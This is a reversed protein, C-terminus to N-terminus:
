VPPSGVDSTRDSSAFQRRIVRVFDELNVPKTLYDLFGARLGRQKDHESAAASVAIVPVHQTKPDNRLERLADFGSMGPLNIDMVIVDLRHARALQLGLEGTTASMLSVDELLSAVIDQMFALNDPSDEVYLVTRRVQQQKTRVAPLDVWFESGEGLVSRFGVDGHMLQALRKTIFLGVGTGEIPGLEQGARQFAQFLKGQKDLPIGIGTDSVTLRVHNADVVSLHLGVKGGPRNYKIANTAFNMLIQTFRLRDAAILPLEASPPELTIEVESRVALPELTPLVQVLVEYANTPEISVTVGGSDIQSLNLIDEILCRLHEGSTLIRAVRERQLGSLPQKQDLQMLQAFGLIVSLPTRLEHSILSFFESRARSAVDARLEEARKSDSLNLVFRLGKDPNNDFTTGGVLIPIRRGDKNLLEKEYPHVVKTARSQELARADLEWWEPPTVQDWRVQQTALEAASYGIMDLFATNADLIWGEYDTTVIGIIGSSVLGQLLLEGKRLAADIRIHAERLQEARKRDSLDLVFCIGESGDSVSGGLLIPIRRGGKHILESEYPPGEKAGEAEQPLLGLPTLQDWRVQGSLLEVQSYGTMELFAANADLLIGRGDVTVLGLGGSDFFRQLRAESKSLAAGVRKCEVLESRLEDEVPYDAGM